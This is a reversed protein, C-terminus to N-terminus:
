FRASNQRLSQFLTASESRVRHRVMRRLLGPRQMQRMCELAVRAQLPQVHVQIADAVLSRGPKGVEQSLRRRVERVDGGLEVRDSVTASMRQQRHKLMSPATNGGGLRPQSQRRHHSTHPLAAPGARRYVVLWPAPHPTLVRHAAAESRPTVHLHASCDNLRRPFWILCTLNSAHWAM